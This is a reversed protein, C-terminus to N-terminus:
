NSTRHFLVFVVAEDLMMALSEKLPRHEIAVANLERFTGRESPEAGIPPQQLRRAEEFSGISVSDYRGEPL